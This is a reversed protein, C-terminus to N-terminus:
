GSHAHFPYLPNVKRLVSKFRDAGVATAVAFATHGLSTPDGDCM